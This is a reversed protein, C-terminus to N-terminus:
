RPRLFLSLLWEGTALCRWPRRDRVFSSTTTRARASRLQRCSCRSTRGFTAFACAGCTRQFSSSIWLRCNAASSLILSPAPLACSPVYTEDIGAEDLIRKLGQKKVPPLAHLLKIAVGEVRFFALASCPSHADANRSSFSSVCWLSSWLVRPHQCVRGQRQAQRGCLQPHRGHPYSLAGSRDPRRASGTSLPISQSLLANTPTM